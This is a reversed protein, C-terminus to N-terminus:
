KQRHDRVLVTNLLYSVRTRIRCAKKEFVWPKRVGSAPLPFEYYGFLDFRGTALASQVRRDPFVVDRDRDILTCKSTSSSGAEM